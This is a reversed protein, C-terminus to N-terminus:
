RLTAHSIRWVSPHIVSCRLPTGYKSLGGRNNQNNFRTHSTNPGDNHGDRAKSATHPM